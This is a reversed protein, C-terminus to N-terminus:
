GTTLVFAVPISQGLNLFHDLLRLGLQFLSLDCRDTRHIMKDLGTKQAVTGLYVMWVYALCSAIMLRCIRSPASLHSKHLNFGRSTQDSFFTEITQDCIVFEAQCSLPLQLQRPPTARQSQPFLFKLYAEGLHSGANLLLYSFLIALEDSLRLIGRHAFVNPNCRDTEKASSSPVVFQLFVIGLIVWVPSRGHFDGKICSYRSVTLHLTLTNLLLNLSYLICYGLMRIPLQRRLMNITVITVRTGLEITWAQIPHSIGGAHSGEFQNQYSCWISQRTLINMLNQQDFFQFFQSTVDLKQFTRHLLVIGMVLQQQLDTSCHGFVLTVQNSISHSPPTLGFKSSARQQWPCASRIPIDQIRFLGSVRASNPYIRDFGINYPLNEGPISIGFGGGRQVPNDFLQIFM